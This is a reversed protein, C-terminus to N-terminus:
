HAFFLMFCWLKWKEAQQSSDSVGYNENKEGPSWLSSVQQAFSNVVLLSMQHIDIIDNGAM